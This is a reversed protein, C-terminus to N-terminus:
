KVVGIIEEYKLFYYKKKGIEVDNGGWKKYIVTQGKKVDPGTHDPLHPGVTVVTGWQPVEKGKSPNYIGSSKEAFQAPEVVVFGPAPQITKIDHTNSM